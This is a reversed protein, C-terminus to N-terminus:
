PRAGASRFGDDQVLGPGRADAGPSRRAAGSGPEVGRRPPMDRQAGDIGVIQGEVELGALGFLLPIAGPAFGPDVAEVLRPAALREDDVGRWGGNRARKVDAVDEAVGLGVYQRTVLAHAPAVDEVRHAPVVVAQGGLAPHLVEEVDPALGAEGVLRPQPRLRRVVGAPLRRGSLDRAPIEDLQAKGEGAFVLLSELREPLAQPERHVPGELVRRDAVQAPAHRLGAEEVEM